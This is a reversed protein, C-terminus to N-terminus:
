QKSGECCCAEQSLATHGTVDQSKLVSDLHERYRKAVHDPSAIRVGPGVGSLWGFFQRSVTVTASISFHEEDVRRIIRDSGFRDIMVGVLYNECVLLVREQSGGFMGFTQRTYQAIDFNGFLEAGERREKELFLNVMKDVRYHKIMDAQADYGVMYYNEEEWTLAWPSIYYRSGNKRLQMKKTVTWEFYQFSIQVNASIARYIQDVNYYINENAAKLRNSVFVQRQLQAAQHRGALKELKRILERSKGVSIFRSSQVADVLLRLEGPEFSRSGLYYGSPRARRHCVDVGFDRLAELDDYVSKREAKIGYGALERQLEEVKVPHDQDSREQLAKWIYLIKLKQRFSRPM